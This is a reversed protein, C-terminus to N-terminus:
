AAPALPPLLTVLEDAWSPKAGLRELTEIDRYAAQWQSLKVDLKLKLRWMRGDGPELETARTIHRAAIEYRGSRAATLAFNYEERATTTLESIISISTMLAEREAAPLHGLHGQAEQERGEAIAVRAALSYYEPGPESVLQPLRRVVEHALDSRGRALWERAAGILEAARGALERYVNLDSGCSPCTAPNGELAARCVPCADLQMEVDYPRLM